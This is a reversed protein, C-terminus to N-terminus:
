LLLTALAALWSQNDHQSRFYSLVPFSLHCELLEGSWHEWEELFADLAETNGTRGMRLLLQGARPPSHLDSKSRCLKLITPPQDPLHAPAM